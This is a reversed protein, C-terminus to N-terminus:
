GDLLESQLVEPSPAQGPEEAKKYLRAYMATDPGTFQKKQHLALGILCMDKKNLQQLKWGQM